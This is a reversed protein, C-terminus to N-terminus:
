LKGLGKMPGSTFVKAQKPQKAQKPLAPLKLQKAAGLAKPLPAQKTIPNQPAKAAKFSPPPLTKFTGTGKAM